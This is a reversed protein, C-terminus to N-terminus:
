PSLRLNGDSNDWGLVTDGFSVFQVWSSGYFWKQANWADTMDPNGQAALVQTKTSGITFAPAAFPTPTPTAETLVYERTSSDDPDYGLVDNWYLRVFYQRLSGTTLENASFVCPGFQQQATGVSVSFFCLKATEDSWLSIDKRVEVQLGGSTPTTASLTLYVEVQSGVPVTIQRGSISGSM